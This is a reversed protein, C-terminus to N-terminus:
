KACVIDALEDLSNYERVPGKGTRATDSFTFRQTTGEHGHSVVVTEVIKRSMARAETSSVKQRFCVLTLSNTMATGNELKRLSRLDMPQNFLPTGGAVVWYPGHILGLGTACTVFDEVPRQRWPDMGASSMMNCDTQQCAARSGAKCARTLEDSVSTITRNIDDRRERYFDDRARDAAACAAPDLTQKCTRQLEKIADQSPRIGEQFENNIQKAKSLAPDEAAGSRAAGPSGGAPRPATM